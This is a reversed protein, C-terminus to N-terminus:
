LTTGKENIIKIDTKEFHTSKRYYIPCKKVQLFCGLNNYIEALEPSDINSLSQRIELAKGHFTAAASFKAQEQM